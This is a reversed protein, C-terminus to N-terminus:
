LARWKKNEKCIGMEEIPQSLFPNRRERNSTQRLLERIKQHPSFDERKFYGKNHGV